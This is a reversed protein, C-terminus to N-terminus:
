AAKLRVRKRAMGSLGMAAAMVGHITKPSMGLSVRPM